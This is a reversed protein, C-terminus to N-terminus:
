EPCGLVAEPSGGYVNAFSHRWNRTLGIDAYFNGFSEPGFREELELVALKAVTRPGLIREFSAVQRRRVRCIDSARYDYDSITQQYRRKIGAVSTHMREGAYEPFGELMWYPGPSGFVPLFGAPLQAFAGSVQSQFSHLYEHAVVAAVTKLYSPDEILGAGSGGTLCIVIRFADAFGAVSGDRRCVRSWLRIDSDIGDESVGQKRSVTALGSASAALYISVPVPVDARYTDQVHAIAGSVAKGLSTEHPTLANSLFVEYRHSRTPWFQRLARVRQGFQFCVVTPSFLIGTRDHGNRIDDRLRLLADVDDIRLETGALERLEALQQDVCQRAVAYGTDMSAKAPSLWAMM